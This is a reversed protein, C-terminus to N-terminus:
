DQQEKNFPVNGLNFKFPLWQVQDEFNYNSGTDPYLGFTSQPNEQVESTAPEEEAEVQYCQLDCEIKSPIALQFNIKIDNGERNLNACYQWPHLEVEYIDAALLPQSIWINRSTTNILIVSM